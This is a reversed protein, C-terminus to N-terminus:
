RLPERGRAAEAAGARARRGPPRGGVVADSIMESLQRNQQELLAVRRSLSAYAVGAVVGVTVFIAFLILAAIM